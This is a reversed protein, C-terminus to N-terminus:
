MKSINYDERIASPRKPLLRHSYGISGFIGLLVGAHYITDDPYYLKAGVAGIEIRAAHDLM